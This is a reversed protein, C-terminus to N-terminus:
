AHASGHPGPTQRRWALGGATLAVVIMGAGIAGIAASSLDFGVGPDTAEVLQPAPGPDAARSTDAVDHRTEVVAPTGAVDHQTRLVTYEKAASAAISSPPPMVQGQETAYADHVPDAPMAPANQAGVAGAMAAGAVATALTQKFTTPFM